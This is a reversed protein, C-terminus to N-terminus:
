HTHFLKKHSPSEYPIVLVKVFLAVNLPDGAPHEPEANRSKGLPGGKGALRAEIRVM